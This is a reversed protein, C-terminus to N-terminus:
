EEKEGKYEGNRADTQGDKYGQTYADRLHSQYRTLDIDPVFCIGFEMEYIYGGEVNIRMLDPAYYEWQIENQNM